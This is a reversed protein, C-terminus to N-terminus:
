RKKKGRKLKMNKRKERKARESEEKKKKAEKKKEEKGQKKKRSQELQYELREEPSMANIKDQLKKQKKLEKDRKKKRKRLEKRYKESQKELDKVAIGRSLVASIRLDNGPPKVRPVFPVAFVKPRRTNFDNRTNTENQMALQLDDKEKKEKDGPLELQGFEEEQKSGKLKEEDIIDDGAALAKAKKEWEEEEEEEEDSDEKGKVVLDKMPIPKRETTVIENKILAQALDVSWLPPRIYKEYPPDIRMNRWIEDGADNQLRIKELIKNEIAQEKQKEERKEAEALKEMRQKAEKVRLEEAYEAIDRKKKKKDLHSKIPGLNKFSKVSWRHLLVRKRKMYLQAMSKAQVVKEKIDMIEIESHQGSFYWWCVKEFPVRGKNQDDLISLYYILQSKKDIPAKARRTFEQFERRAITVHEVIIAGDEEM